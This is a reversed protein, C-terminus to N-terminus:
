IDKVNKLPMTVQLFAHFSTTIVLKNLAEQQPTELREPRSSFHQKLRVFFVPGISTAFWTAASLFAVVMM